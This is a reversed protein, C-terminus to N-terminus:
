EPRGSAARLRVVRASWPRGCFQLALAGTVRRPGPNGGGTFPLILVVNSSASKGAYVMPRAASIISFSVAFNSFGSLRRHLEQQYGLQALREEDTGPVPQTSM